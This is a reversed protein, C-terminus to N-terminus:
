KGFGPPAGSGLKSRLVRYVLWSCAASLAVYFCWGGVTMPSLWASVSNLAPTAADGFEVFLLMWIAGAALMGSFTCLFAM